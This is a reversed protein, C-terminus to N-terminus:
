QLIVENDVQLAGKIGNFVDLLAFRIRSDNLMLIIQGNEDDTMPKEDYILEKMKAQILDYAKILNDEETVAQEHAEEQKILTFDESPADQNESKSTPNIMTFGFEDATSQSNVSESTSQVKPKMSDSEGLNDKIEKFQM